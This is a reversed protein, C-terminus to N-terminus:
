MNRDVTSINGLLKSKQGQFEEITLLGAEKLAGLKAIEDAVSRDPLEVSAGAPKLLKRHEESDARMIIVELIGHWQRAQSMAENYKLFDRSVEAGRMLVLDHLPTAIDDIILRLQISKVSETTTQKASLGGIIAGVGGLALGGVIVGGVQSSRSTKTVAAGDEFIEVSLVDKYDVVKNTFSAGSARMLCLKQRDEDLGIGSMLDYGFVKQTPTFDPLSDMAGVMGRRWEGNKVLGAGILIALAFFIGFLIFAEM